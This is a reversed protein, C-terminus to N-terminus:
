LIRGSLADSTPSHLLGSLFRSRESRADTADDLLDHLITAPAKASPGLYVLSLPRRPGLATGFISLLFCPPLSARKAGLCLATTLTIAHCAYEPM